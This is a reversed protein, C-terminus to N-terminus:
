HRSPPERHERVLEFIMFPSKAGDFAGRSDDGYLAEVVLGAARAVRECDARELLSFRVDLLMRSRMAGGQDYIEYIQKGSVTRTEPDFAGAGWLLLREGGAIAAEALLRLRGDETAVRHVPNHLTCILRGGEGLHSATARLAAM